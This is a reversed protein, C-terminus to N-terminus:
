IISFWCFNPLDSLYWVKPTLKLTDIRGLDDQYSFQNGSQKKTTRRLQWRVFCGFSVEPRAIHGSIEGWNDGVALGPIAKLAQLYSDFRHYLRNGRQAAQWCIVTAVLANRLLIAKLTCSQIHLKWAQPKARPESTPGRSSQACASVPTPTCM